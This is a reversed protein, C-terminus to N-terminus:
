KTKNRRDYARQARRIDEQHIDIWESLVGSLKGLNRGLESLQYEVQPPVTPYVRREVFGSRELKRLTETLVKQTIDPLSRHLESHRKVGTGLIHVVPLTWKSALIDAVGLTGIKSNLNNTEQM